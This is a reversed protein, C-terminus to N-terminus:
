GISLMPNPLLNPRSYDLGHLLSSEYSSTALFLTAPKTKIDNAHRNTCTYASRHPILFKIQYLPLNVPKANADYLMLIKHKHMRQLSFQSFNRVLRLRDISVPTAQVAVFMQSLVRQM